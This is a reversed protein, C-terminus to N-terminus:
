QLKWYMHIVNWPKSKRNVHSIEIREIVKKMLDNTLEEIDAYESIAATVKRRKM